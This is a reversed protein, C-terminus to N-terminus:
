FFSAYINIRRGQEAKEAVKEIGDKNIKL